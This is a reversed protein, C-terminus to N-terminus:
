DADILARVTAALTMPDFPKAIVSRAGLQMLGEVENGRTAATIFVVPIPATEPQDLLKRRTDPGSLGPMMVDLLILDPRWDPAVALAETGSACARVTFGPDLELAMVAIERLDPEDDVYLIRTTM